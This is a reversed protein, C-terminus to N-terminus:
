NRALVKFSQADGGAVVKVIYLGAQPLAINAAGNVVDQAVLAGNLSYVEVSAADESVVTLVNGDVYVTALDAAAVNSGAIGTTADGEYAGINIAGDTLRANGALDLAMFRDIWSQSMFFMNAYDAM